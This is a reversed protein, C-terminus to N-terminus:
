SCSFDYVAVPRIAWRVKLTKLQKRRGDVSVVTCSEADKLQNEYESFCENLQALYDTLMRAVDDREQCRRRHEVIDKSLQNWTTSASTLQQTIVERDPVSTDALLRDALLTIVNLKDEGVATEDLQMYMLM